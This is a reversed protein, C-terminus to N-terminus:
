SNRSKDRNEAAKDARVLADKQELHKRKGMKLFTEASVTSSDDGEHIVVEDFKTDKDTMNVINVMRKKLEDLQRVIDHFVSPSSEMERGFVEFVM